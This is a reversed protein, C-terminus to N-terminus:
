KTFNVGQMITNVMIESMQYKWRDPFNCIMGKATLDSFGHMAAWIVASNMFLLWPDEPGGEESMAQQVASVFVSYAARMPIVGDESPTEFSIPVISGSSIRGLAVFSEREDHSLMFYGAGYAHVKERGTLQERPKGYARESLLLYECALENLHDELAARLEDTSNYLVLAKETSVGARNAVEVIDLAKVGFMAVQQTAAQLIMDTENMDEPAKRITRHARIEDIAKLTFNPAKGFEGSRNAEVNVLMGRYMMEFCSNFVQKRIAPTLLRFLGTLTLQTVGHAATWFVITQAEVFEKTVDEGMNTLTTATHEFMRETAACNGFYTIEHVMSEEPVKAAAQSILCAFEENNEVAHMFYSWYIARMYEKDSVDEPLKSLIAINYEELRDVMLKGLTFLLDETSSFYRNAEALSIGARAAVDNLSVASEGLVGVIETAERLLKERYNAESVSPETEKKVSIIKVLEAPM